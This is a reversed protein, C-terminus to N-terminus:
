IWGLTIGCVPRGAVYPTFVCAERNLIVYLKNDNDNHYLAREFRTRGNLFAARGIKKVKGAKKDSMFSFTQITM